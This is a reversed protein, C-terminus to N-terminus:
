LARGRRLPEVLTRGTGACPPRKPKLERVMAGITDVHAVVARDPESIRGPLDARIAGRRTLEFEIGMKELEGGVFRVIADTYGSPSPIALLQFLVEILYKEDIRM